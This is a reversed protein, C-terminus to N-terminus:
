KKVKEKEIERSLDHALKYSPDIQLSKQLDQQAEKFKDTRFYAFSRNYYVEKIKLDLSVATNFAGIAKRYEKMELYTCGINYHALPFNTDIKIAQKFHTIAKNYERENFAIVGHNNYVMAQTPANRPNPFYQIRKPQESRIIKLDPRVIKDKNSDVITQVNKTKKISM